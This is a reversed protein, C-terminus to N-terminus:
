ERSLSGGTISEFRALQIKFFRIVESRDVLGSQIKEGIEGLYTGATSYDGNTILCSILYLIAETYKPEIKVAQRAAYAAEEYRKRHIHVYSMALWAPAYDKAVLTIGRLIVEARRIDGLELSFRALEYFNAIESNSYGRRLIESPTRESRGKGEAM